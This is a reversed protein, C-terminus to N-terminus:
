PRRIRRVRPAQVSPCHRSPSTSAVIAFANLVERVAGRTLTLSRVPPHYRNTIYTSYENVRSFRLRYLKLFEGTSRQGHCNKLENVHQTQPSNVLAFAVTYSPFSLRSGQSPCRRSSSFITQYEEQAVWGRSGSFSYYVSRRLGDGLTSLSPDVCGYVCICATSTDLDSSVSGDRSSALEDFRAAPSYERYVAQLVCRDCELDAPMLYHMRAIWNRWDNPVDINTEDATCEPDIFYRGPYAPDIPSYSGYDPDRDLPYKNFCEQTPVSDAGEPLEDTNCIFFEM